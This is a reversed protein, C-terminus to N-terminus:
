TSVSRTRGRRGRARRRFRDAEEISEEYGGVSIATVRAERIFSEQSGVKGAAASRRVWAGNSQLTWGSVEDRIAAELIAAARLRTAESLLPFTVEIRRNFNRPMWDGSALYLEPQGGNEFQFIRGHELFRDIVSFVQIRSSLEPVGPVLCCISRVVLEIDVGAQSAAYLRAIVGPEVLSNLKARIRAPRGARAQEIERDIMKLLWREYDFPAVVLRNWRLTSARTADALSRASFGTVINLLRAADETMEPDCTLLDLDTYLRASDANYNGTSLHLYRRLESGEERAILCVKAHCELGVIGYVVQVGAEQLRKAWAINRREEFRAQLEIIVSVQKGNQAALALKEVVPSQEDTQYLTQKIARVAPDVAAAHLLEIVSAFSDYPRHLLVDGGRIVAFIDDATMLAAPLRPNFGPYHLTRDTVRDCIELLDSPELFGSVRYVDEASARTGDIILQVLSDDARADVELYVVQKRERRRLETEISTRLDEIEDEDITLETNRVLRFLVADQLELPPLLAALNAMILSGIPVFRREGVEVFSPLSPPVKMLVFHPGAASSFRAAIFLTLNPIFPFPHSPDIALPTLAPAFDRVFLESLTAQEAASLDRFHELVIGQERLAPLLRDALLTHIEGIILGARERVARLQQEPTLGDVTPDHVGADIRDRISGVRVMFFEDMNRSCYALFRLRDLLPVAPDEARALVRRNYELRSLERNLFPLTTM